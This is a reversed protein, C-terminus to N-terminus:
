GALIRAAELYATRVQYLRVELSGPALQLMNMIWPAPLPPLEETESLHAADRLWKAVYLICALLPEDKSLRPEYQFAVPEVFSSPFEWLKLLAGGVAANNFGLTRMEAETTETPLGASGFRLSTREHKAWVDIAIHGIGHLLGVTYAIGRNVGTHEALQEAAIACSVSRRLADDVTLGYTDLPRLLLHSAAAFSVLRHVQEFGVRSVADPVSDCRYGNTNYYVSSGIQMVRAAIASDIQILDIVDDLSASESELLNMLRALVVPVSPLQELGDVFDDPSAPVCLVPQHCASAMLLRDETGGAL